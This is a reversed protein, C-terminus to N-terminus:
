LFFALILRVLPAIVVVSAAKRAGMLKMLVGDRVADLILKSGHNSTVLSSWTSGACRSADTEDDLTRNGRDAM